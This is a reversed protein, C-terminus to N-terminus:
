KVKIKGSKITALFARYDAETQDAYATAFEGLAKTIKEGSGCYGRIRCADGEWAREFRLM